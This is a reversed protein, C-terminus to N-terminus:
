VIFLSGTARAPALTALRFAMVTAVIPDIKESSDRKDFMWRDQRDRVIVANGACWRLLPNGDHVFLGARMVELFHHIPENFWTYSQAVGLVELGELSLEEATSRANSVDFAVQQVGYTRADEILAARLEANPHSCKKVLDEHIWQSFPQLELNRKTNESIFARVRVEYRWVPKEGSLDVPFRAVLACASLDDYGGLDFGAVVCDAKKWDSLEGKCKDWEDLDFAAETCSVRRNCNYRMFRNMAIPSAKAEIAKNRMYSVPVSVGLNPNAKLWVSEDLPDDEEDLEAIFVFLEEDDVQGTVVKKAYEYVELWLYSRDDGATTIISILPQDRMGSGTVMTDYFERHHERWAHLEDMAVFHPNLGDYPKDSGTTIIEGDNAPFRVERKVFVSRNTIAPSKRRMRLIEAFVVKEAQDRKTASLVVQSVPEPLCVIPNNDFGAMYVSRGAIKASKGMKRAMSEYSKRFRRTNDADRLWGFISAEIFIQWPELEFPLGACRGVSHKLVKPYFRCVKAALQTDFHYPFESTSARQTDKVHREVAARVLKSVVITGDLVGDIYGQLTSHFADAIM